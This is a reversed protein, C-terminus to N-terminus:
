YPRLGEGTDPMRNKNALERLRDVSKMRRKIAAKTNEGLIGDPDLEEGAYKNLARQIKRTQYQAEMDGAISKRSLLRLEMPKIYYQYDPNNQGAGTAFFEGAWYISNDTNKSTLETSKYRNKAKFKLEAPSTYIHSDTIGIAAGAMDACNKNKSCYNEYEMAENKTKHFNKMIDNPVELATFSDDGTLRYSADSDSPFDVWSKSKLDGVFSHPYGTYKKDIIPARPFAQSYLLKPYNTTETALVANYNVGTAKKLWGIEDEVTGDYAVSKKEGKYM